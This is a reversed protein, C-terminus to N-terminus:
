DFESFVTELSQGLEEELIARVDEFKTKPARMCMPEFVELYEDPM